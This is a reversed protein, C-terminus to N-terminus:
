KDKLKTINEALKENFKLYSKFVALSYGYLVEIDEYLLLAHKFYKMSREYEDISLLLNALAILSDKHTKDITLCNKYYIIALKKNGLKEYIKGLKFFSDM